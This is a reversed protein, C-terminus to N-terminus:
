NTQQLQITSIAKKVAKIHKSETISSCLGNPAGFAQILPRYHVMSHQRPLSFGDPRVVRFIERAKHFRAVTTDIAFLTDEDIVSRRVLHCFRDTTRRSSGHPPVHGAIAPLYVKM